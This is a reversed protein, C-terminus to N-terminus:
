LVSFYINPLVVVVLTEAAAIFGILAEYAVKKTRTKIDKILVISSMKNSGMKQTTEFAGM